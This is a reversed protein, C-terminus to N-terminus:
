SHKLYSAAAKGKQQLTQANESIATALMQAHETIAFFIKQLEDLEEATLAYPNGERLLDDSINKLEELLLDLQEVDDTKVAMVAAEVRHLGAIREKKNM